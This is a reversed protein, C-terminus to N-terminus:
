RLRRPLATYRLREDARPGAHARLAGKRGGPRERRACREPVIRHTAASRRGAHGAGSWRGRERRLCRAGAALVAAHQGRAGGRRAGAAGRPPWPRADSRGRSLPARTIRQRQADSQVHGREVIAHFHAHGVGIRGHADDGGEGARLHLAQAAIVAQEPRGAGVALRLQDLEVPGRAHGGGAHAHLRRRQRVQEGAAAVAELQQLLDAFGPAAVDVARAPHGLEPLGEDIGLVGTACM